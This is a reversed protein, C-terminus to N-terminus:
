SAMAIPPEDGKVFLIKGAKDLVVTREKSFGMACLNGCHQSWGLNMTAVFVNKFTEKETQFSQQFKIEAQYSLSTKDMKIGKIIKADKKRHAEGLMTYYAIAGKTIAFAQLTGDFSGCWWRNKTNTPVVASEKTETCKEEIASRAPYVAEAINLLREGEANAFTRKIKISHSNKDTDRNALSMSVEDNAVFYNKVQAPVTSAFLTFLLLLFIIKKM